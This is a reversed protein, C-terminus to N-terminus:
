AKGAEPSPTGTILVTVVGLLLSASLYWGTLGGMAGFVFYFYIKLKDDM